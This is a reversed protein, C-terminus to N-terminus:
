AYYEDKGLLWKKPNEEIYQLHLCYDEENRVVHDFYGRQWIDVASKKNTMRKLTSVYRAVASNTPSPAGSTGDTDTPLVALLLHVHNPMIVYSTVSVNDYLENMKVIENEIIVGNATLIIKPDDLAGVGVKKPDDPAGVGVKKPDDLAGVGAKKPDDPAGVGVISSFIQKRDKSCLTLFYVNQTSYDFNKM